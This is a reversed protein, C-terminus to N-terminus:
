EYQESGEGPQHTDAHPEAKTGWKRPNVCALYKLRMWLRLKRHGLMDETRTTKGEPGNIVIEGPQPTDAIERCEDAIEDEGLSRARAFRVAFSPYSDCWLYITNRTPKGQQLCYQRLPKGDAIWDCVETAWPEPAETANREAFNREDM